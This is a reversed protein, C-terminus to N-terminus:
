NNIAAAQAKAEEAQAATRGKALLEAVFVGVKKKVAQAGWRAVLEALRRDVAGGDQCARAAVTYSGAPGSDQDLQQVFLEGDGCGLKRGDEDMLTGEWRAVVSVDFIVMRAGRRLNVVADGSVKDVEVIRVHGSPVDVDVGALLENLRARAWPMFQKEEWGWAAV